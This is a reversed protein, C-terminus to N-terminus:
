PTNLKIGRVIVEKGTEAFERKCEEFYKDSIGKLTAQAQRIATLEDELKASEAFKEAEKLDHVSAWLRTVMEAIDTM